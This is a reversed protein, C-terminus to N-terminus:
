SYMSRDSHTSAPLVGRVVKQLEQRQVYKPGKPLGWSGNYMVPFTNLRPCATRLRDLQLEPLCPPAHHKNGAYIAELRVHGVSIVAAVVDALTCEGCSYVDLVTLRPCAQLLRCVTTRTVSNNHNLALVTIHLWLPQMFTWVDASLADWANMRAVFHVDAGAASEVVERASVEPPYGPSNTHVRVRWCAPADVSINPHRPDTTFGPETSRCQWLREVTLAASPIVM